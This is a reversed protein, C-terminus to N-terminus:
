KQHWSEGGLATNGCSANSVVKMSSLRLSLSSHLHFRRDDFHSALLFLLGPVAFWFIALGPPTGLVIWHHAFFALTGLISILGGALEKRWGMVYGGFVFALIVAQPFSHINPVLKWDRIAEAIVLGLWNSMLIAAVIVAAYRCVAYYNFHPKHTLTYM